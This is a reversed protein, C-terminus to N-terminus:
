VANPDTLDTDPALVVDGVRRRHWAADGWSRALAWTRKMFLHLDYETTYGIAGHCQLAARACLEAAESAQAKAMSVHVSRRPERAAVSWAARYVLPAAFEISLRANALHHKVAQFSGIPVGFQERETAYAVTTDLMRRALGVLQAALGLAGRDFALAAAASDGALTSSSLEADIWGLRRAGDVSRRPEVRVRDRDVAHVGTGDFTVVVAASDAWVAFEDTPPLVAASAEGAVLRPGRADGGEALLPVAVAATEVIPEPLCAYGAEELMLVIDVEDLGLGGDAEPALLGLVGMEALAPWAGSRGDANSWADRVASPPCEKALLDRVADRFELQEDTFAFRV